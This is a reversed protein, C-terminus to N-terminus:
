PTAGKAPRSRLLKSVASSRNASGPPSQLPNYSFVSNLIDTASACGILQEATPDAFYLRCPISEVFKDGAGLGLSVLHGNQDVASSVSNLNAATPGIMEYTTRGSTKDRKALDPLVTEDVRTISPKLEDLLPRGAKAASALSRVTPRLSRVLPRARRLLHDAELVTPRLARVTPAIEGAPQRLNRVLTDAGELTDDLRDLTQRVSPMVVAARSLTNQVAVRHEATTGLTAGGGEIVDEVGDSERDLAATVRSANAVLRRLDGPQEGQATNLGAALTPSAKAVSDLAAAPAAPDQLSRPLEELTTRLGKRENEKIAALIEDVEVQSSTQDEPILDGPLKGKSASGRDLNVVYNGGLVNRFGISAKADDYLPLSDSYVSMEVTATRGGPDLSIKKVKGQQVGKVRVFMGSHLLGTNAFRAKVTTGDRETVKQFFGAFTLVTVLTVLALLAIGVITSPPSKPRRRSRM